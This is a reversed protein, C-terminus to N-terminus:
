LWNCACQFAAFAAAGAAMAVEQSDESAGVTQKGPVIILDDVLGIVPIIDQPPLPSCCFPAGHHDTLACSAQEHLCLRGSRGAM